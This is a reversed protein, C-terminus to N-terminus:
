GSGAVVSSKLSTNFNGCMACSGNRLYCNLIYRPVIKKFLTDFFLRDSEVCNKKKINTYNTFHEILHRIRSKKNPSISLKIIYRILSIYLKYFVNQTTIRVLITYKM